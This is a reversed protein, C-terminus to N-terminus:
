RVLLDMLFYVALGLVWGFLVKGSIHRFYWWITVGESKMLAYGSTSGIPLLCGGVSACFAVLQWYAGNVLFSRAYEPDIRRLVSVHEAVDYMSISSLVLVINDLVASLLGLAVSLVYINHIKKDCWDAAVHLAGTEQLAGVALCVGIFFLITQLTEYQLRRPFSRTVPQESRILKRNCVEDVVWFLALLCLAGVFPPLRTLDHFTPIFWLGGIGVFFMLIRQWPRLTTDDGRFFTRTAEIDIHEPLKRSILYTPVAAAVMAPLALAASFGSPTVAEKSWLMLSCVDGIVTFCGGCNAALVIAAGYYMRHLPTKVIQRMVVLVMVTTTLNDLNASLLFTIGVLMWLLRRSNRTRVWSRLFDFCGNVNLVEVIAMTALLFLVIGCIYASYNVFIHEAIFTKVATATAPAGNLFDAFEHPYMSSVYSRGHFMFLIWGVVGLFMAVASKNIRTIHETAIFVYGALLFALIILTMIRENKAAHRRWSHTRSQRSCFYYFIM